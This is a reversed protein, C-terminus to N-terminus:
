LVVQLRKCCTAARAHYNCDAEGCISGVCGVFLSGLIRLTGGLMRRIVQGLAAPPVSDAASSHMEGM